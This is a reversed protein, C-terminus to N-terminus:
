YAAIGNAGSAPLGGAPPLSMLSGNGQIAFIGVTAAGSNLTYVFKSDATVAIDLNAAGKPNSGVVIGDLPTLAGGSGISFGSISATGANSTYVFQGDPTIVSWCTAAGMTPLTATIPTLTGDGQVSFSSITSANTGGAPGTEVAVAAGDPAFLVAFLGPLPSAKVVPAALTGDQQVAFVDFNNSIRETAVLLKGDPSFALSSGGASNGSLFRTSNPIPDVHGFRDLRFGTISGSGGGNLVYLLSGNQATAVPASGGSPVRDVLSLFPGIVRFVSIDGSGSNVAFLLSHDASLMLSGQSGLPDGLGGSGRGGTRFHGLQQLSGDSARSYSLIENENANNTMVFVAGASQQRPGNQALATGAIALSLVILVCTNRQM